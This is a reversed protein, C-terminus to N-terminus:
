LKYINPQQCYPFNLGPILTVAWGSIKMNRFGAKGSPSNAQLFPLEGRGIKECRDKKALWDYWQNSFIKAQLYV